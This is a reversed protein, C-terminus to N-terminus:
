SAGMVGLHKCSDTMTVQISTGTSALLQELINDGKHLSCPGRTFHSDASKRIKLRTFHRHNKPNKKRAHRTFHPHPRLM